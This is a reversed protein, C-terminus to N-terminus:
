KQDQFVSNERYEPYVAYISKVLDNFSLSQTWQVLTKIYARSSESLSDKLEEAKKMGAPTIARSLWTGKMSPISFVLGEAELRDADLYVDQDFPGYHYPEFEYFSDPIESLNEGMLFLSKQLQVPTLPTSEGAAVVMLLFDKRDIAM